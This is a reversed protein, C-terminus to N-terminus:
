WRTRSWWAVGGNPWSWRAVCSTNMPAPSMFAASASMQLETWVPFGCSAAAAKPRQHLLPGATPLGSNELMVRQHRLQGQDQHGGRRVSGDPSILGYAMLMQQLQAMVEPQNGYKTSLEQIANQFGPGDGATLRLSVESLLLNATSMKHSVAFAKAEDLLKLSEDNKDSANILTMYALLKAPQQEESLDVEILRKAFRRLAPTAAVQQSRQLLYILSEANLESADVRNLDENGLTEIQEDSPKIPPLPRLKAIEYARALISDGKSAIADYQEVIRMVATRELLKSDDEAAAQLSVGGLIPLEISTITDPMRASVLEEQLKEAEAPKAQFRIMAVSPQCAVLLPMSTGPEEKMEVDGVIGALRKKVEELNHKRVDLVEVRAERDTQKGYVFVLAIMEPVEEIPPLVDLSEPKDRDLIQFGSRPPVDDESTRMNNLLDPPLSVVRSDATLAMEVEEANKIEANLMSVPVSIEPTEPDVIASMALYRVREEFDLSECTSLKKLLESQAGIDGRWIACTLLGSLVAPEQPLTKRLSNFKAEALDIKNSRLLVSAEDYREGWDADAPRAIPSPVAKMLQSITPASNLQRLVSVATQGGEYGSAMMALTAYVRATLFVGSQALSYALM